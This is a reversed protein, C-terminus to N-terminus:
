NAMSLNDTPVHICLYTFAWNKFEPIITIRRLIQFVCVRICLLLLVLAVYVGALNRAHPLVTDWKNNYKVKQGKDCSCDLAPYLALFVICVIGTVVRM